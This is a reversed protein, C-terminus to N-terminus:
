AAVNTDVETGSIMSNLKILKTLRAEAQKLEVELKAIKKNKKAELDAYNLFESESKKNEERLKQIEVSKEPEELEDNKLRTIIELKAKTEQISNKLKEIQKRCEPEAKQFKDIGTQEIVKAANIDRDHHAGCVPCTWKRIKVPLSEGVHGCCSCKKTSPDYRGIEVMEAGFWECKYKIMAKLESMAADAINKNHKRKHKGKLESM